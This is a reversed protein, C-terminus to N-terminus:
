FPCNDTRGGTGRASPPRRMAGLVLRDVTDEIDVMGIDDLERELEKARSVQHDNGSVYAGAIHRGVAQELAAVNLPAKSEHQRRVPQGWVWTDGGLRDIEAKVRETFGPASREVDHALSYARDREEYGGHIMSSAIGAAVAVLAEAVGLPGTM